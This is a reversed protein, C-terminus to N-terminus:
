QSYQGEFIMWNHIYVSYVSHVHTVSVRFLAYILYVSQESATAGFVLIPTDKTASFCVVCSVCVCLLVCEYVCHTVYVCVSDCM